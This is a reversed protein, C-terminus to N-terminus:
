MVPPRAHDPRRPLANGRPPGHGRRQTGAKAAAQRQQPVIGCRNDRCQLLVTM